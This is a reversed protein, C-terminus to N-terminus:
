SIAFSIKDHSPLTFRSPSFLRMAINKESISPNVVIESFNVGSIRTHNKLSYKLVNDFTIM